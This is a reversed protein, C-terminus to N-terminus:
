RSRWLFRSRNPINQDERGQAGARIQDACGPGHAPHGHTPRRKRAPGTPFREGPQLRGSPALAHDAQNNVGTGDQAPCTHAVM